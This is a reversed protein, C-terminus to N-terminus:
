FTVNLNLGLSRITPVNNLSIGQGNLGTGISSDPDIDEADKYIFFLNRGIIGVSASKVWSDELMASPFRYNLSMERLRFNTQDYVYNADIGSMAGWYQQATIEETNAAGTSENIADVVVGGRYQLTRESVGSADLYSSTASYIEGGIRADVLLRLSWNKYNFTNTLGGIWDPQSNGLLSRESSALPIGDAGVLIEGEENTKWTTGYIDGVGGGVSAQINLTGLSNLSYSDLGDILKILKNKNKSFNLSVDWTFDDTVIPKGGIMVEIGNNEIEGINERFFNYGTAPAVPVDFIMDETKIKYISFDTYLRNGFMNTEFGFESSTISEPKLDPNFKVSPGNLSTLGLYGNQPVSFTQFLQYVGTDGGVQAWSARLKFLNLIEKAPDIFRDILISYSASPYFYSRNDESLASSWDNRATLDLFMFDDYAFNLAGYLSNVKKVGLPTHTSSQTVTNNLFPPEAIKFDRGSVSMTEFTRKSLNGGINANLNLKDTIDKDIMILFDSNLETFKNTSFNLRGGPFFHHGYNQIVDSRVNTVDGGIRVFASLWDTFEYNVKAFGLFRDRREDNTDENLIWYPNGTSKNQGSYSIVNYLSGFMSPDDYQSPKYKKLDSIAVNRPMTYVYAMIGESGLNVRNNLEQSFFTAKTDVSLKDSLDLNGRLNFNHSLLDSNPIVSTIKNNTYSFRVSYDDGGKSVAVSNISKIGTEFFDEVNDPQASYAKQEGTYYLQQSGDLSAGWSSGGYESLDQYVRGQTGAGYQNQYDPLFMTNEISVNSNLSVGLGAGKKGKKTTILVVGNAARSGYLAAANPGKLVSLSEIDAPNIDTIGGGTPTSNYIDGGSSSGDANIPIGDVVILAQNYGSLSNNGRIVIRSGSGVGGSQTITVGAVKGVLSNAVNYDKVTNIEESQLETVAYGLSKKERTLGLATVVVEDLSETSIELQVNITTGSVPVEQTLFGVMSFVLVADEPVDLTYVGDFDTSTGKSTDKQIVTVGPLPMGSEADTVTGTVTQEQAFLGQTSVLFVLGFLLIFHKAM